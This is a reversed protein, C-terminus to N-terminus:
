VFFLSAVLAVFVLAFLAPYYAEVRLYPSRCQPCRLTRRYSRCGCGRCIRRPERAAKHASHTSHAHRVSM